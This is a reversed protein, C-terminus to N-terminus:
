SYYNYNIVKIGNKLSFFNSMKRFEIVQMVVKRWNIGEKRLTENVEPTSRQGQSVGLGLNYNANSGWVYVDAPSNPDLDSFVTELHDQVPHDFPTWGPFCIDTSKM